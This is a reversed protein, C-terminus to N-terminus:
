RLFGIDFDGLGDVEGVVVGVGETGGSPLVAEGVGWAAGDEDGRRPVEGAGDGAASDEGGEDAAVGDDDFGGGFGGGCGLEHDITKPAGADRFLARWNRGAGSLSSPWFSMVSSRMVETM